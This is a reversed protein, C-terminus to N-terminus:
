PIVGQYTRGNLTIAVTARTSSPLRLSARLVGRTRKARLRRKGYQVVASSIRRKSSLTVTTLDGRRSVTANVGPPPTAAVFASGRPVTVATACGLESTDLGFVGPALMPALGSRGNCNISFEQAAVILSRISLKVAHTTHRATEVGLLPLSVVVPQVRHRRRKTRRSPATKAGRVTHTFRAISAVRNQNDTASHATASVRRAANTVANIVIPSHFENDGQLGGLWFEAPPAHYLVGELPTSPLNANEGWASSTGVALDNPFVYGDDANFPNIATGAFTWTPVGPPAMRELARAPRTMEWVAPSDVPQSARLATQLVACVAVAQCPLNAFLEAADALFSGDHPTGITFLGATPAHYRSIAIRAILGGMSHGVLLAPQRVTTRLFGVLANANTNLDGVNNLVAGTGGASASVVYVPFGADSLAQCLYVFDSARTQSCGEGPLVGKNTEKLGPVLVVPIKHTAGSGSGETGTGGEPSGSGTDVSSRSQRILSVELDRHLGPVSLASVGPSDALSAIVEGPALRIDEIFYTSNSGVSAIIDIPSRTQSGDAPNTFTIRGAACTGQQADACPRAGNIATVIEGNDTVRIQRIYSNSLPGISASQTWGLHGSANVVTLDHGTDGTIANGSAVAGGDPLARAVLWPWDFCSGASQGSVWTWAHATPTERIVGFARTHNSFDGPYCYTQDVGQAAQVFGGDPAYSLTWGGGSGIGQSSTDPAPRDSLLNGQLDYTKVNGSSTVLISGDGGVIGVSRANTGFGIFGPLSTDLIIAGTQANLGVIHTTGGAGGDMVYINGDSGITM